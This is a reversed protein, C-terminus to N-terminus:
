AWHAIVAMCVIGLTMGLYALVRMHLPTSTHELFHQSQNDLRAAERVTVPEDASPDAPHHDYVDVNGDRPSGLPSTARPAQEAMAVAAEDGKTTAAAVAASAVVVESSTIGLDHGIHDHFLSPMFEALAVYLLAGGALGEFCGQTARADPSESDGYTAGIGILIGIPTTVAFIAVLVAMHGGTIKALKIASGMGFGECLQHFLLAVMLSLASQEDSTIGLAFGVLISHIAVSTEFMHVKAVAQSAKSMVHHLETEILYMLLAGIAVFLQAYPYDSGAWTWGSEAFADQAEPMIHLLATSLIVGTGLAVLFKIVIHTTATTRILLPTLAGITGGVLIGAAGGLKIPLSM